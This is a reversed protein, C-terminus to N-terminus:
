ALQYNINGLTLVMTLVLTFIKFIQREPNAYIAKRSDNKYLEQIDDRSDKKNVVIKNKFKSVNHEDLLVRLLCFIKNWFKRTLNPSFTKSKVKSKIPKREQCFLYIFKWNWNIEWYSNQIPISNQVVYLCPRLLNNQITVQWMNSVFTCQPKPLQQRNKGSIEMNEEVM